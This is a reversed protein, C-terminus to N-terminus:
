FNINKPGFKIEDVKVAPNVLNRRNTDDYQETNKLLVAGSKYKVVMSNNQESLFSEGIISSQKCGSCMLLIIPIILFNKLFARNM